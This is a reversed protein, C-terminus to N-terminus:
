KNKRNKNNKDWLACLRDMEEIHEEPVVIEVKGEQTFQQDEPLLFAAKSVSQEQMAARFVRPPIGVGKWYYDNGKFTCKYRVLNMAASRKVEKPQANGMFEDYTVGLEDCMAQIKDMVEGRKKLLQAQQKEKEIAAQKKDALIQSAADILNELHSQECRRFFAKARLLNGLMERAAEDVDKQVM